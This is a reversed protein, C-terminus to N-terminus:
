DKDEEITHYEQINGTRIIWLKGTVDGAELGVILTEIAERWDAFTHRSPLRIVVIGAYDCPNYKLRNGFGRDTTVICRGESRCIHIVEEDSASILCQTAVTVVDHGALRLFTLVRVDINEDLKLKM